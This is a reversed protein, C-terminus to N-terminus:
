KLVELPMNKKWGIFTNSIFVLNLFVLSGIWFYGQWGYIGVFCANLVSSAIPKYDLIIYVATGTFLGAIIVPIIIRPNPPTIWSYIQLIFFFITSFILLLTLVENLTQVGLVALLYDITWEM